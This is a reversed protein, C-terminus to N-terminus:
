FVMLSLGTIFLILHSYHIYNEEEMRKHFSQGLRGSLILAIVLGLIEFANLSIQAIMERKQIVVMLNTVLWIFALNGRTANKNQLLKNLYLSIFPGGAGICAYAVGSTFTHLGALTKQFHVEKNKLWTLTQMMILFLLMIGSFIKLYRPPIYHGFSSALLFGFILGPFIKKLVPAINLSKRDLTLLYINIAINLPILIWINHGSLGLVQALILAFFTGGFGLIVELCQSFLIILVLWVYEM